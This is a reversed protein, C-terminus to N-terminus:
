MQSPSNHSIHPVPPVHPPTVSPPPGPEFRLITRVLRHPELKYWSCKQRKRDGTIALESEPESMTTVKGRTFRGHGPGAGSATRSAKSKPWSPGGVRTNSMASTPPGQDASSAPQLAADLDKTLRRARNGGSSRGAQGTAIGAAMTPKATRRPHRKTEPRALVASAYASMRALKSCERRHWLWRKRSCWTRALATNNHGALEMNTGGSPQLAQGLPNAPRFSRSITFLSIADTLELVPSEAGPWSLTSASTACHDASKPNCSPDHKTQGTAGDKAEAIARPWHSVSTETLSRRSLEAVGLGNRNPGAGATM